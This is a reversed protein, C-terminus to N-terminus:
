GDFKPVTCGHAVEKLYAVLLYAVLNMEDEASSLRMTVCEANSNVRTRRLFWDSSFGLAPSTM